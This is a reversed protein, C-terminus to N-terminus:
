AGGGAVDRSSSRARVPVPVLRPTVLAIAATLVCGLLVYVQWLRVTLPLGFAHHITGLGGLLSGRTDAPLASLLAVLPDIQALPTLPVHAGGTLFPLSGLSTPSLQNVAELYVAVVSLGFVLLLSVLISTMYAVTLRATFASVLISTASLFVVTVVFVLFAPVMDAISMGGFLLVLAFFPLSATLLVLNFAIGALLKGWVIGGVSAPSALLLDWTGHQREGSIGGAVTAPTVFAILFLETLALAQFLHVGAPTSASAVLSYRHLLFVLAVGALLGVYLTVVGAWRWGRLRLTLDKEMVASSVSM